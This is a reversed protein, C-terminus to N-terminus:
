VVEVVVVPITYGTYCSALPQVTQLGFGQESRVQHGGLRNYSQYPDNGSTFRGSHPTLWRVEDLVSTLPITSNFM